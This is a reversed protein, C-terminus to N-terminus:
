PSQFAQIMCKNLKFDSNDPMIAHLAEFLKSENWWFDALTSNTTFCLAESQVANLIEQLTSLSISSDYDM